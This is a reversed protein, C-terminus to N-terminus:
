SHIDCLKRLKEVCNGLAKVAIDGYGAQEGEGARAFGNRLFYELGKRADGLLSSVEQPTRNYEKQYKDGWEGAFLKLVYKKDVNM